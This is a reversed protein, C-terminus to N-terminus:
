LNKQNITQFLPQAENENRAVELSKLHFHVDSLDNNAKQFLAEM